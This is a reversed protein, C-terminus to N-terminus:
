VSDEGECVEFLKDLGVQADVNWTRTYRNWVLQGKSQSIQQSGSQLQQQSVSEQCGGATSKSDGTGSSVLLMMMEMITLMEWQDRSGRVMM